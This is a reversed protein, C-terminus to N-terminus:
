AGRRCRRWADRGPVERQRQGAALDRRRQGDAAGDDAARGLLGRQDQDAEEFAHFGGAQGSARGVEDHAGGAIQGVDEELALFDALDAEGAGGLDALFQDAARGVLDLAQAEFEAAVGRQDDEGVGVDLLDGAGRHDALEAVVALDADGRGAEVDVLLEALVEGLGGDLQGLVELEAGAPFFADLDSGHELGFREVLGLGQDVVGPRSAGLDQGAALPGITELFAVEELGGDEALDVTGIFSM